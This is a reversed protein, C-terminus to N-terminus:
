QSPIFIQRVNGQRDTEQVVQRSPRMRPDAVGREKTTVVKRSAGAEGPTEREVTEEVVRPGGPELNRAAGGGVMDSAKVSKTTVSGDPSKAQETVTREVVYFRPHDTDQFDRREVTVEHNEKGEQTTTREKRVEYDALRGYADPLQRTTQSEKADGSAKEESVERDVVKWEGTITPVRVEKVSQKAAKDGTETGTERRLPRSRGQFDPKLVEREAPTLDGNKKIKERTIETPVLRNSGDPNKLVYEKEISGDPLKRTRIEREERLGRDGAYSPMLVRETVVEGDETVRRESEEVRAYTVSGTRVPFTKRSKEVTGPPPPAPEEQAAPQAASKEDPSAKTTDDTSQALLAPSAVALTLFLTGSAAIRTLRWFTSAVDSIRAGM